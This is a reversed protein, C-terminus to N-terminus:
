AVQHHRSASPLRSSIDFRDGAVLLHLKVNSISLAHNPTLVSVNSDTAEHADIICVGGAGMVRLRKHNELIIATDEDIGVGLYRPNQAVAGLLRGVRGREAFHQDIILNPVFGLGPAMRINSGIRREKAAVLLMTESMVSAGASTGAVVGGNRYIELIRDAVITGGLESTIKFQDGGTFFVADADEVAKLARKDVSEHRHFVDLHSIKKVGLLKFINKYSQWVEDGIRSAVTVICLKRKVRTAVESLIPMDGEKSEGGGIIILSGQHRHPM